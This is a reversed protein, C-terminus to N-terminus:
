AAWQGVGRTGSAQRHRREMAERMQAVTKRRLYHATSSLHAHGLLEQVVQLDGCADLVDSACSRRLAHGSVGDFPAHKVGAEYMWEAMLHGITSPSLPMHPRQYSRFFPGVTAPHEDLYAAFARAAGTPVPVVREHGGKGVLRMTSQRRSWDEVRARHVEIRRAGMSWELQVIARARADPAVGDLREEADGDITRPDVRPRKPAQMQRCPNARLLRQEVLWDLFGSIQSWQTAKTSPKLHRRVELWREITAQGVQAVPRRGHLEVLVALTSRYCAATEPNIVGTRVRGVIYRHAHPQLSLGM